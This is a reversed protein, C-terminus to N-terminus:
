RGCWTSRGAFLAPVCLVGAARARELEARASLSADRAGRGIDIGFGPLLLGADLGSGDGGSDVAAFDLGGPDALAPLGGADGAGFAQSVLTDMGLLLGSACVAVGYFLITGLGVAAIAEASVRGVVMTDVLGMAMWGLEALVIPAGVADDSYIRISARTKQEM